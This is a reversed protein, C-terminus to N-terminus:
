VVYLIGSTSVGRRVADQNDYCSWILSLTSTLGRHTNLRQVSGIGSRCLARVSGFFWCHQAATLAVSDSQPRFAIFLPHRAGTGFKVWKAQWRKWGPYVCHLEVWKVWSKWTLWLCLENGKGGLGFIFVVCGMDLMLGAKIRYKHQQLRVQAREFAARVTSRHVTPPLPASIPQALTVSPCFQSIGKKKKKAM